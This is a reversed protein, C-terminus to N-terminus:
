LSFHVTRYINIYIRSGKEVFLATYYIASFFLPFRRTPSVPEEVVVPVSSSPSYQTTFSVAKPYHTFLSVLQFRQTREKKRRRSLWMGEVFRQCGTHSPTSYCLAKVIEKLLFSPFSLFSALFSPLAPPYSIM